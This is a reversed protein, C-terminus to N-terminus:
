SYVSVSKRQISMSYVSIPLGKYNLNSLVWSFEESALESHVYREYQNKKYMKEESGIM